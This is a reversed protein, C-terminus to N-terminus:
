QKTPQPISLPEPQEFPDSCTLCGIVWVEGPGLSRITEKEDPTLHRDVRCQGYSIERIKPDAAVISRSSRNGDAVLRESIALAQRVHHMNVEWSCDRGILIRFHDVSYSVKAKWVSQISNANSFWIIFPEGEEVLENLHSFVWGRHTIKKMPLAFRPTCFASSARDIFVKRMVNQCWGCVLNSDPACADGDIFSSGCVHANVMEGARIDGGCILCHSDEDAAMQGRPIWNLARCAIQSGSIFSEITTSM